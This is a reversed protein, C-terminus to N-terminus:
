YRVQSWRYIPFLYTNRVDPKSVPLAHVTAVVLGAALVSFRM